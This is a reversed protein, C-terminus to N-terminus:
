RSGARVERMVEGSVFVVLHIEWLYGEPDGIWWVDPGRRPRFVLGSVGPGGSPAGSGGCGEPVDSDDWDRSEVQTFFKRLSWVMAIFRRALVIM